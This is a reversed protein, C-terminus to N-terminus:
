GWDSFESGNPMSCQVNLTRCFVGAPCQRFKYNQERKSFALGFFQTNMIKLSFVLYNTHGRVFIENFYRKLENIKM